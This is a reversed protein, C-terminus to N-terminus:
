LSHTACSFGSDPATTTLDWGLPPTPHYTTHTSTLCPLHETETEVTRRPFHLPIAPISPISSLISGSHFSLPYDM